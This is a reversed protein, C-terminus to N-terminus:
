LSYAAGIRRVFNSWAQPMIKIAEFYYLGPQKMFYTNILDNDKNSRMIKVHTNEPTVKDTLVITDCGLLHRFNM